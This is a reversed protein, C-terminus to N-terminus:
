DLDLRELRATFRLKVGTAKVRVDATVEIVDEGDSMIVEDLDDMAADTAQRACQRFFRSLDAGAVTIRKESM